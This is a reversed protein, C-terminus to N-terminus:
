GLYNNKSNDEQKKRYEDVISNVSYLFCNLQQKRDRISLNSVSKPLEACGRLEKIRTTMLNVILVKPVAGFFGCEMVIEYEKLTLSKGYEILAERLESPDLEFNKAIKVLSLM